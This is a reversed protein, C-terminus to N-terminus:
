VEIDHRLPVVNKEYNWVFLEFDEKKSPYKEDLLFLYISM